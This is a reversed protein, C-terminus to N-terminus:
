DIQMLKSKWDITIKYKKFFQFGFNVANFGGTFLSIEPDNLTLSGIKIEGDLQSRYVEFEGGPTRGKAFFVPEYKLKYLSKWELPITIFGPSGCDFHALVEKGLLNVKGELIDRTDIPITKENSKLSGKQFILKAKQYDISLLNGNFASLGIIGVANPSFINEPKVAVTKIKKLSLKGVTLMKIKVNQVKEKLGGNPSTMITFGGSKLRYEKVVTESLVIGGTGTDFIFSQEPESNIKAKILILNRDMTFPVEIQESKINQAFIATASLIIAVFTRIINKM